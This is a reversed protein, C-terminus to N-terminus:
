QVKTCSSISAKSLDRYTKLLEQTIRERDHTKMARTRARTGMAMCLESDSFFRILYHALMNPEDRPYLFGEKGHELMDPVGGVFSSICPMGLIMAEGLSNPSNEINSSSVFVHSRLYMDRMQIENLPGSFEIRDEIHYKRILHMLYQGYGSRKLLAKVGSEMKLPAEGAVTLKVDPFRSVVTPLAELLYHLGKLPYSGQSVFITHKRCADPSWSHGEYFSDRLIEGHHCYVASPNMQAICAKDWETRGGVQSILSLAALEDHGRRIIDKKQASISGGKLIDRLTKLRAWSPPVGKAFHPACMSILGQVHLLVKGIQNIDVAAKAVALANQYESGFVHIVDYQEQSLITRLRAVSPDLSKEAPLICYSIAGDCVTQPVSTKNSFSLITLRIDDQNKVSKLLGLM